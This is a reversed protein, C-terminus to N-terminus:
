SISSSPIDLFFKAAKIIRNLISVELQLFFVSVDVYTTYPLCIVVLFFQLSRIQRSLCCDSEEAVVIEVLESDEHNYLILFLGLL